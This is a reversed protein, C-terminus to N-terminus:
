HKDLTKKIKKFKIVWVFPNTDRGLNKKLYKKDWNQAADGTIDWVRKVQVEIIQLKLRSYDKPMAASSTWKYDDIDIDVDDGFETDEADVHLPLDSRYILSGIPTEFFAEKVCLINGISGFPCRKIINSNSIREPQYLGGKWEIVTDFLQKPQPTLPRVFQGKTKDLFAKVEWDDFTISKHM